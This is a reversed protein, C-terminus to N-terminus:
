ASAAGATADAIAAEIKKLLLQEKESVREGGFGLFGGEKAANAVKNAIELLWTKYEAEDEASGQHRIVALAAHIGSIASQELSAPTVDKAEAKLEERVKAMSEQSVISQFLENTGQSADFFAKAATMAEQLSGLIGSNGATMVALAVLHPTNRVTIWDQENLASQSLM